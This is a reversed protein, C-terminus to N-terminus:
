RVATATPGSIGTAAGSLVAIPAENLTGTPNAAFEEINSANRNSAFIVGTPGLSLGDNGGDLGTNSGSITALPAESVTGVPDAAFVYINGSDLTYIRGSSDLAIGWPYNLGTTSNRPINAIPAENLNGSPTSPVPPYVEIGYVNDTVYVRQAADFAISHTEALKVNSGSITTIPSSNVTGSPNAAYIAITGPYAVYIKGSADIGMGYLTVGGNNVNITATPAENLIGASIPPYVTVTFLNAVYINGHSDVDIGVPAGLGTNSGSITAVPAENGAAGAPYGTVANSNQNAVLIAAPQPTATPTPSPSATATPTASPAPSPTPTASRAASPTASPASSPTVHSVPPHYLQVTGAGCGALVLPLTLVFFRSAQFRRRNWIHVIM